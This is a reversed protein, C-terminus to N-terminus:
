VAWGVSVCGYCTRGFSLCLSVLGFGVRDLGNLLVSLSCCFGALLLRGVRGGLSMEVHFVTDWRKSVLCLQSDNIILMMIIPIVRVFKPYFNILKVELM